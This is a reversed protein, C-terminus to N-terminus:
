PAYRQREVHLAMLENAAEIMGELLPRGREDGEPVFAVEMVVQARDASDEPQTGDVLVVVADVGSPPEPERAELYHTTRPM